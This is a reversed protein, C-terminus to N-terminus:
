DDALSQLYGYDILVFTQGSLSACDATVCYLLGGPECAASTVQYEVSAVGVSTGDSLSIACYAQDEEDPPPIPDLPQMGLSAAAGALVPGGAILYDTFGEIGFLLQDAVLVGALKSAFAINLRGNQTLLCRDIDFDFGVLSLGLFTTETYSGAAGVLLSSIDFLGVGTGPDGEPALTYETSGVYAHFSEVFDFNAPYVGCFVRIQGNAEYACCRVAPRPDPRSSADRASSRLVWECGDSYGDGDSDGVSMDTGCIKEVEDSLGDEDQDFGWDVEASARPVFGLSHSSSNASPDQVTPESGIVALAIVGVVIVSTRSCTSWTRRPHAM